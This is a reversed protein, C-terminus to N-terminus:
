WQKRDFRELAQLVAYRVAQVTAKGIASHDFATEANGFLPVERAHTYLGQPSLPHTSGPVFQGMTNEIRVQVGVRTHCTLQKGDLLARRESACTSFDFLTVSLQFEPGEVGDRPETHVALGDETRQWGKVLRKMLQEPPEMLDFRGTDVLTDLLMQSLGVRVSTEALEPHRDLDVTPISMSKVQLTRKPGQVAPFDVRSATSIGDSPDPIPACRWLLSGCAIVCVVHWGITIKCIHVPKLFSTERM